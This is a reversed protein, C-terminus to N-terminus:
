TLPGSQAECALRQLAAGDIRYPLWDVMQRLGLREYFQRAPNWHLVWLDLRACGARVATRAVHRLLREGLGLGRAWPQVFLDELYLSRRGEWTSFSFFWLAFGAPRRDVEAIACHFSPVPGFGERRFDAETARVAEAAREFEALAQVMALITASDDAVADRIVIEPM